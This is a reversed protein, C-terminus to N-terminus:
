IGGCKPCTTKELDAVWKNGCARCTIIENESKASFQDFMRFNMPITIREEESTNPTAEHRIAGSMIIVSGEKVNVDLTRFNELLGSNYTIGLPNHVRFVAESDQPSNMFYVAIWSNHDHTHLQAFDGKKYRNIWCNITQIESTNKIKEEKIIKSLCPKIDECLENLIPFSCHLFWDSKWAYVNTQDHSELRCNNIKFDTDNNMDVVAGGIGDAKVKPIRFNPDKEHVLLIQNIKRKYEEHRALTFSWCKQSFLTHKNM